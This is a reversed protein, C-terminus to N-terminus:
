CRSALRPRQSGRRVASRRQAPRRCAQAPDQGSAAVARASRSISPQQAFHVSGIRKLADSALGSLGHRGLVDSGSVLERRRHQLVSKCPTLLWRSVPRDGGM